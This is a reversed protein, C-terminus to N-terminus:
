RLLGAVPRQLVLGDLAGAACDMDGCAAPSWHRKRKESRDGCTDDLVRKGWVGHQFPCAEVAPPFGRYAAFADRLPPRLSYWRRGVESIEIKGMCNRGECSSSCFSNAPTKESLPDSVGYTEASALHKFNGLVYRLVSANHPLATPGGLLAAAEKELPVARIEPLVM